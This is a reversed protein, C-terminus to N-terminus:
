QLTAQSIINVQRSCQQARSFVDLYPSHQDAEDLLQMITEEPADSDVTVTYRVDLYGPPANTVSFLASDDYDAQVEVELSRIDINKRSAYMMYGMALCSGLAARGYVGPTPGAANGGVQQPMDATFRWPGEEVQCTLGTIKVKSIGTGMGLSPRLSIAKASREFAEKIKAQESNM